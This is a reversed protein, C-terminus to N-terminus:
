EELESPEPLNKAVKVGKEEFDKVLGLLSGRGTLTRQAETFTGHATSLQAGIREFKELFIALKKHVKEASQALEVTSANQRDIRWLSTVTRLIPLLTNPTVVAIKREYAYDFLSADEEFAALYAAENPMFMFVFDPSNLLDLSDYGKESLTKIHTRVHSTHQKLHAVAAAETSANVAELYANLSVKSDIILSKGEPLDVIFDPRQNAGDETKYNAERRYCNADLGANELLRELQLEGWNGMRKKDNRLAATLNEARESLQSNLSRLSKLENELQGQGKAQQTQVEDVRKRFSGLVEKLPNIVSDLGTKSTQTLEDQRAKLITSSLLKFEDKLATKQQAFDEKLRQLYSQESQLQDQQRTLRLKYDEAADRLRETHARLKRQEETAQQLSEQLEAIKEERATLTTTLQQLQIQGSTERARLDALHREAHRQQTDRQEIQRRQEDLRATLATEHQRQLALDRELRIQRMWFWVMVAVCVLLGGLLSFTIGNWGSAIVSACFVSM